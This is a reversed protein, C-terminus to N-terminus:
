FMSVSFFLALLAEAFGNWAAINYKDILEELGNYVEPAVATEDGDNISVRYGGDDARRIAYTRPVTYGGYTYFFEIIRGRPANEPELVEVGWIMVNLKDDVTLRYIMTNLPITPDDRGFLDFRVSTTGAAAGRLHFWQVGSNGTLGLDHIDDYYAEQIGILSEDGIESIWMQNTATDVPLYLDVVNPSSNQPVPTFVLALMTIALILLNQM